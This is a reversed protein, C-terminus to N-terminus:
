VFLATCTGARAAYAIWHGDPSVSVAEPAPMEPVTVLFRIEEPAESGRLYLSAPIAAAILLLAATALAAWALKSRKRRGAAVPAPVGIESGGEAIWELQAMLDLATQIRQEPDKALCRRVVYDLAPPAMPQAKSVLPPDATMISSILLARSKGEFAKKGTLTEYLVAGFAFIDTRADAEKGELQEPAMYQMTGLITGPTTVEKGVSSDSVTGPRQS